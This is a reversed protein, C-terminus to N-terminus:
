IGRDESCNEERIREVSWIEQFLHSDHGNARFISCIESREKKKEEEEEEKKKTHVETEHPKGSSLLFSSGRKRCAGGHLHDCYM